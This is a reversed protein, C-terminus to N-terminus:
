KEIYTDRSNLRTGEKRKGRLLEELALEAVGLVRQVQKWGVDREVERM